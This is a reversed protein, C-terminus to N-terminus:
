AICPGFLHCVALKAKLTAWADPFKKFENGYGGANAKSVKPAGHYDFLQFQNYGNEFHVHVQFSAGPSHDHTCATCWGRTSCTPWCHAATRVCLCPYGCVQCVSNVTAISRTRVEFDSLDAKKPPNPNPTPGPGQRQLSQVDGILTLLASRYVLLAFALALM